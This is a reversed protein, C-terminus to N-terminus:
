HGHKRVNPLAMGHEKASQLMVQHLLPLLARDDDAIEEDAFMLFPIAVIRGAGFASGKPVKWAIIRRRQADHFGLSMFEDNKEMPRPKRIHCERKPHAKFFLADEDAILPVVTM